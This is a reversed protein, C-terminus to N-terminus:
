KKKIPLTETKWIRFKGYDHKGVDEKAYGFFDLTKQLQKRKELPEGPYNVIFDNLAEHMKEGQEKTCITEGVIISNDQFYKKIFKEKSPIDNHTIISGFLYEQIIPSSIIDESKLRIYEQFEETYKIYNKRANAYYINFEFEYTFPNYRIFRSLKEMYKIFKAIEECENINYLDFHFNQKKAIRHLYRNASTVGINEWYDDENEYVLDMSFQLADTIIIAQDVRERIRGAIQKIDFIYHNEIILLDVHSKINIGEKNKSNTILLKIHSPIEETESIHREIEEKNKFIKNYENKLLKNKDESSVSVAISKEPLDAEKACAILSGLLSFTCMYYVATKGEKLAAKLINRADKGYTFHTRQPKTYVANKRYDLTHPNYKQIMDIAPEPTASMFILRTKAEAASKGEICTRYVEDVFRAVIFSSEAYTADAILSHFEDIIVFDFDNWFAKTLPPWSDGIRKEIHANTCIVSKNSYEDWKPTDINRIDSIFDDKRKITESVKAKRSTILLVRHKEALGIYDEGDKHYGEIISNKGAGMGAYISIVGYPLIDKEIDVLDTLRKREDLTLGEFIDYRNKIDKM